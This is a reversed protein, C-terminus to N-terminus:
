QPLDLAVTVYKYPAYMHIACFLEDNYNFHMTFSTITYLYTIEQYLLDIDSISPLMSVSFVSLRCLCPLLQSM